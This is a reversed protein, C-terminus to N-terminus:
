PSSRTPVRLLAGSPKMCKSTMTSLNVFHISARGIVTIFDSYATNNKMSMTWRKMTGFEMMVSLPVYNVPLFEELEAIVVVNANIPSGYRM